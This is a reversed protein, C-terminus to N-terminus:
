ERRLAEVPSLKAARKAPYAGFILGIIISILLSIIIGPISITFIFDPLSDFMNIISVASYSILIGLIVGLIGGFVTLTISEILFQKVIDRKKAGLSRMLGIEKTRESVTVLMINMIGVGGVVLSIAAILAIFISAASMFKEFTELEQRPNSITFDAKDEDNFGGEELLVDLLQLRVSNANANPSLVVHIQSYGYVNFPPALLTRIPVIGNFNKSFYESKYVGIIKFSTGNIKIAQNIASQPDGYFFDKVVNSNVIIVKSQSANEEDTVSGRGAIIDLNFNAITEETAGNLRIASVEGTQSNRAQSGLSLDGRYSEVGSISVSKLFRITNDDLRRAQGGNYRRYISLQNIGTKEIESSVTATISNAASMIAVVAGIGIIIGIMTLITRMLNARMSRIVEFFITKYNM